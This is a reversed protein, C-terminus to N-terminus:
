YVKISVGFIAGPGTTPKFNKQIEGFKRINQM